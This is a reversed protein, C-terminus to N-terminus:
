PKVPWTIDGPFGAQAPVDRLAQRYGTMAASMTVDTSATWDTTALLNDRETRADAALEGDTHPTVPPAIFGGNLYSWGIGGVECLIWNYPKVDKVEAVCLNVVKANKIIAYNPM